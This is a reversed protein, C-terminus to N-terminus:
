SHDEDSHHSVGIWGAPTERDKGNALNIWSSEGNLANNVPPRMHSIEERWSKPLGLMTAARKNAKVWVCQM